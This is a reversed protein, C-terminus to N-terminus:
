LGDMEIQRLDTTLKDCADRIEPDMAMAEMSREFEGAKRNAIYERLAEKVLSNLNGKLGAPAALLAEEVLVRPLAVSRRVTAKEM